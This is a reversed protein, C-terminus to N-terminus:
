GIKKFDVSESYYGNSSGWWKVTVYGNITKFRYFTWTNSDDMYDDPNKPKHEDDHSITEEAMLIPSGELDSLEGVIDDIVVGECCDQEHYFQYSEEGKFILCDGEDKVSTFVKGMLEDIINVEVDNM